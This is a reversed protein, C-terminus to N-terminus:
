RLAQDYDSVDVHAMFGATYRLDDRGNYIYPQSNFVAPPNTAASGRPVFQNGLVSYIPDAAAWSSSIRTSRLRFLFRRTYATGAANPKRM